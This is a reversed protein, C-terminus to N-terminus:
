RQAHDRLYVTAYDCRATTRRRLGDAPRPRPAPLASQKTEPTHPSAVGQGAGTVLSPVASTSKPSACITVKLSIILSTCVFFYAMDVKGHDGTSRKLEKFEISDTYTNVDTQHEHRENCANAEDNAEHGGDAIVQRDNRRASARSDGLCHDSDSESSVYV